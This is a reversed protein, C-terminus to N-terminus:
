CNRSVTSCQFEMGERYPIHAPNVKLLKPERYLVSVSQPPKPHVVTPFAKLLKPERYLVSVGRGHQAVHAPHGAKLLKPERYLVSVLSFVMGVAYTEDKLLKPERYLVSVKSREM